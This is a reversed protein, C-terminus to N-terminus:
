NVAEELASKFEGATKFLIEPNDILARDVVEAVRPPIDPNRDRIPVPATQLIMQFPDQGPQFDRPYYGTVLNYFTAAMAWVDVEPRAYKFNIVQQRPMLAPSGAVTGTRTLGSLGALDFIKGVGVDAIKARGNETRDTLFINAPKLDRHVLGRTMRKEGSDTEPLPIEVNHINELGELCQFTLRLALDLPVRGVWEDRLEELNGGGCYEMTYFLVGQFEGSDFLKIVNPHDLHQVINVERLFSERAWRNSILEPKLIKLAARRRSSGKAVQFVAGTAGQGLVRLIRTDTFSELGTQGRSALNLLGKLLAEPDPRCRPCAFGVHGRFVTKPSFFAGCAACQRRKPKPQPAKLGAAPEFDEMAVTLSIDGLSIVDGSALAMGRRNSESPDAPGSGDPRRGVLRDNLWTGNLSGLDSLSAGDSGVTIRCHLRSINQLEPRDPLRLRCELGRGVSYEGQKRLSVTKGNLSGGSFTLSVAKSM